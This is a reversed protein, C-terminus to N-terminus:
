HHDSLLTSSGSVHILKHKLKGRRGYVHELVRNVAHPYGDNAAQMERLEQLSLILMCDSVTSLSRVKSARAITDRLGSTNEDARGKGKEDKTSGKVSYREDHHSTM